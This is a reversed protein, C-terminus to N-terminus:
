GHQNGGGTNSQPSKDPDFATTVASEAVRRVRQGIERASEDLKDPTLGEAGAQRAVNELIEGAAGKAADFGKSAAESARRKAAAAVDGALNEELESKPLASAILGGVLLGVGAVLLPNEQITDLLTKGARNSYDAAKDRVDRAAELGADTASSAASKTAAAAGAVADRSSDITSSALESVGDKMGSIRTNIADGASAVSDKLRDTLSLEATSSTATRRVQDTGASLVEGVRKAADSVAGKASSVTAGVQASMDHGPRGLEDSLDSAMDSAKQTISQGSKSGAFFLGAGVMLVPLPVSRAFRLLPYALSAGVAVAQMPNRRAAATIDELMSEGRSRVYNSVEAKINEPSIRQRIESATDAVSAKLQDVTQTLGARTQEAERQLERLSRDATQQM